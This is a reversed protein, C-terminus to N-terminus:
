LIVSKTSVLNAEGVIKKYLIDGIKVPKEAKIKNIIKMVEFIKEKPIPKDTKVSLMEETRLRITSTLVRVPAIVESEAYSKGKPCSNGEIKEIKNENLTVKINCGRPCEICILDITKM